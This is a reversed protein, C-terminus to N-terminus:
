MSPSARAHPPTRLVASVSGNGGDWYLALSSAGAWEMYHIEVEHWGITLTAPKSISRRNDVYLEGNVYMRVADDVNVAPACAPWPAAPHGM